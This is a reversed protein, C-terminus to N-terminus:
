EFRVPGLNSVCWACIEGAGVMAPVHGGSVICLAALRLRRDPPMAAVARWHELWEGLTTFARLRGLVQGTTTLEKATDTM